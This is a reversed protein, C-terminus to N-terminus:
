ILDLLHNIITCFGSIISFNIFILLYICNYVFIKEYKKTKEGLKICKIRNKHM